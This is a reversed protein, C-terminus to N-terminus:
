RSDISSICRWALNFLVIIRTPPALCTTQYPDSATGSSIAWHLASPRAVHWQEVYAQKIANQWMAIFNCITYDPGPGYLAM